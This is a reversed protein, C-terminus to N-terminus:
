GNHAELGGGLPIITITLDNSLPQEVEIYLNTIDISKEKKVYTTIINDYDDQNGSKFKILYSYPFIAEEELSYNMATKVNIYYISEDPGYFDKNVTVDFPLGVSNLKLQELENSNIRASNNVNIIM